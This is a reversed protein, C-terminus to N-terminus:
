QYETKIKVGCICKNRNRFCKFFDWEQEAIEYNNSESNKCLESQFTNSSTM